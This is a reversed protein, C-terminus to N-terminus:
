ALARGIEAAARVIARRAGDLTDISFYFHVGSAHQVECDDFDIKLHLKAALRFADGDVDLPNWLDDDCEGTNIGKGFLESDIYSFVPVGAAKAALELLDHDTAATM